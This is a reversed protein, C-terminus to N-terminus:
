QSAVPVATKTKSTQLVQNTCVTKRTKIKKLCKAVNHSSCQFAFLCVGCLKKENLFVDRHLRGHFSLHNWASLTRNVPPLNFVANFPSTQNTKRNGDVKHIGRNEQNRFLRHRYQQTYGHSREWGGGEVAAMHKSLRLFSLFSVLICYFMLLHCM